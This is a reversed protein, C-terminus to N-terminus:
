RHQLKHRNANDMTRHCSRCLRKYDGPDDYKGTVSAWDYTKRKSTTGCMECKMPKGCTNEQRHHKATYSAASGKWQPNRERKRNRPVPRRVPIAFNRMAIQVAKLSCQFRAAIEKQSLGNNLYLCRLEKEPIRSVWPNKAWRAMAAQRRVESIHKSTKM